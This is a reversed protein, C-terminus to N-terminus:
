TGSSTSTSSPVTTTTAPPPAVSPPHQATGLDVSPLQTVQNPQVMHLAQEAQQVIRSPTELQAVALQKERHAAQEASLQAQLTSLRVQGTALM